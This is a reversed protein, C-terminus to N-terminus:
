PTEKNGNENPECFLDYTIVDGEDLGGIQLVDSSPKLGFSNPKFKIM